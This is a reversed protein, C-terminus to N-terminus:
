VTRGRTVSVDILQQRLEAIELPRRYIRKALRVKQKRV